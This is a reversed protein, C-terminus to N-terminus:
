GRASEARLASAKATETTSMALLVSGIVGAIASGVLLGGKALEFGPGPVSLGAIFLSMTFGIGGLCAAAFIQFWTLGGSRDALGTRCAIWAFGAIGIPKGLVLGAAVGLGIPQALSAGIGDLRIGANALAFIPMIAWAVWPALAHEWRMLLSDEEAPDLHGDDLPLEGDDVLARGSHRQLPVFAALLVGAVTAHVGSKLIAVWLVAGVILYPWTSDIGRRNMVWLVVVTVAGVALAAVKISETLVAAIILVAGIDDVVAVSVLFVKLAPPVRDGFLALVGLAFAIDTAAPIPWGNVAGGEGGQFLLYIAAPVLMGGVAALVPLMARKRTSLAGVLLERKVELGVLLFFIAMLGDNIWLILPKAIAVAGVGLKFEVQWIGQWSEAWPSSAAALAVVTAALLLLGGLGQTGFRAHLRRLPSSSTSTSSSQSM